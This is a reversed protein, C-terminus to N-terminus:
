FLIVWALSLTISISIDTSALELANDLADGTVDLGMELQHSSQEHFKSIKSRTVQLELMSIFVESTVFMLITMILLQANSFVEMEVTSMSSVTAASVSTFFLDFDNPRSTRPNTVRLAVYGLVSIIVHYLLHTYFPNAHFLLFRFLPPIHQMFYRKCSQWFCHLKKWSYKLFSELKKRVFVFTKMEIKVILILTGYKWYYPSRAYIISTYFFWWSKYNSKIYINQMCLTRTSSAGARTSRNLRTPKRIRGIWRVYVFIGNTQKQFSVLHTEINQWKENPEM